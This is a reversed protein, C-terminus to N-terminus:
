SLIVSSGILEDAQYWAAFQGPTIGKQPQNFLLYFENSKRILKAKQLPQRYRIRALVEVEGDELIEKSSNVWNMQGKELKLAIRNLGPHQDTQGTYIINKDTDTGIVFSPQPRGGIHLGKRQGITYYHAGQHEGVKKGEEPNFVFPKCL